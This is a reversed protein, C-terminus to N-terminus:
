HHVPAGVGRFVHGNEVSRVHLAQGSMHTAGATNRVVLDYVGPDFVEQIVTTAVLEWEVEGDERDVVVVSGRVLYTTEGISMEDIDFQKAAM